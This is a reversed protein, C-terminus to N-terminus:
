VCFVLRPLFFQACLIGFLLPYFVYAAGGLGLGLDVNFYDSVTEGVTTAGTKIVWFQWTLQPVKCTRKAFYASVKSEKTSDDKSM